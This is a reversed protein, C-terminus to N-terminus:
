RRQLMWIHSPLVPKLAELLFHPLRALRAQQHTPVFLNAFAAETLVRTTYDHVAFFDQALARLRRYSWLKGAHHQWQRERVLLPLYAAVFPKRNERSVFGWLNRASFYCFGDRKLVRRIEAFLQPVDPVYQYVQNCVAIDFTEDAFPLALGSAGAFRAFRASNEREERPATRLANWDVDVGVVVRWQRALARSIIGSSCGVDICYADALPARAGAVRAFHEMVGAIKRAQALRSPTDFMLPDHLSYDTM